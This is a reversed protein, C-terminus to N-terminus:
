FISVQFILFKNPNTLYIIEFNNHFDEVWDYKISTIERGTTDIFGWKDNLKVRVVDEIFSGVEDYKVPIVIAKKLNCFGWKDGKRYPIHAPLINKM